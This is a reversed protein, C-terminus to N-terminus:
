IEDIWHTYAKFEITPVKDAIGKAIVKADELDNAEFEETHIIDGKTIGGLKNGEDLYKVTVKYKPM